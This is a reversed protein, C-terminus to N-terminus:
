PKFDLPAFLWLMAEAWKRQWVNEIEWRDLWKSLLIYKEKRVLGVVRPSLYLVIQPIFVRKSLVWNHWFDDIQTKPYDKAIKPEVDPWNSIINHHGGSITFAPSWGAAL